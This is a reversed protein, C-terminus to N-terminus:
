MPYLRTKTEHNDKKPIKQRMKELLVESQTGEKLGKEKSDDHLKRECLTLNYATKQALLPDRTHVQQYWYSAKQYKGAKYLANALNYCIEPSDHEKQYASFSESSQIYDGREYAKHGERLQQFDLIGANIPVNYLSLMVLIASIPVSQRKSMSSLAFWILLMALGLPYYFLPIHAYLRQSSKIKEITQTINSLQTNHEFIPDGIIIKMGGNTELRDVNTSDSYSSHMVEFDLGQVLMVMLETDTSYPSIRYLRTDYGVLSINEGRLLRLMDIASRKQSEVADHSKKSLDLAILVDARGEAAAEDQFIVPQAMAAILLIAAMLFLTNRGRLTMTTEPSRLRDLINESFVASKPSKQTQWFYFLVAIPPFMWYFFEPHLFTM